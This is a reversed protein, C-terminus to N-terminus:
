RRWSESHLVQVISWCSGHKHCRLRYSSRELIWFSLKENQISPWLSGDFMTVEHTLYRDSLKVEPSQQQFHYLTKCIKCRLQIGNRDCLNKQQKIQLNRTVHGRVLAINIAVLSPLTTVYKSSSGSILNCRGEILHNQSTVHCILYKKDENGSSWHDGFMAFHHSVLLPKWGYIWVNYSKLHTTVHSWM